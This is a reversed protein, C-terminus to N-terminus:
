ACRVIRGGRMIFPPDPADYALCSLDERPDGEVAILDAAAGERVCGLRGSQGMIEANVSTASRLVDIPRDVAARLRFEDRQYRHVPGALDTGFGIRVGAAAAIRVAEVGSAAVHELKERAEKGLSRALDQDRQM